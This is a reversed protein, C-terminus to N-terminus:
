VGEKEDTECGDEQDKQDETDKRDLLVHCGPPLTHKLPHEWAASAEAWAARYNVEELGLISELHKCIAALHEAQENQKRSATFSAAVMWSVRCRTYTRLLHALMRDSVRNRQGPDPLPPPTKIERNM